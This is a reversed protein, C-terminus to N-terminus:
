LAISNIFLNGFLHQVFVLMFLSSFFNLSVQVTLQSVTLPLSCLAASLLICVPNFILDFLYAV